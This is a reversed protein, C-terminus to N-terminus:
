RDHGRGQRTPGGATVRRCARRASLERPCRRRATRAGRCGDGALRSSLEAVREPVPPQLAAAVALARSLQEVATATEGQALLINGAVTLGEVAAAREEPAPKALLKLEQDLEESTRSPIGRRRAILIRRLRDSSSACTPVRETARTAELVAKFAADAAILQEDPMLLEGLLRLDATKAPATTSPAAALPEKLIPIAENARGALMM